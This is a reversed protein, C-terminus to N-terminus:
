TAAPRSESAAARLGETTLVLGLKRVLVERLELHGRMLLTALLARAQGRDVGIAEAVDSYDWDKQAAIFGAIAHRAEALRQGSKAKTPRVVSRKM